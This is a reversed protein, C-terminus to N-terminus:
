YHGRLWHTLGGTCDHAMESCLFDGAGCTILSRGCTCLFPITGQQRDWWDKVATWDVLLQFDSLTRGVEM